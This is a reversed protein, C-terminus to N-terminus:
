RAVMATLTGTLGQYTASIATTGSAVGQVVGGASVTAVSTNQSQWTAVNTINRATRDSLRALAMFQVPQGIILEGEETVLGTFNLEISTVTPDPSPAPTYSGCGSVVICLGLLWRLFKM